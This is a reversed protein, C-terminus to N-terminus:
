IISDITNTQYLSLSRFTTESTSVVYLYICCLPLYLMSTFVVYLYICCLPLYLMSTFVVYLYICCVHLYLMCTFIVYLYICCLPLHESKKYIINTSFLSAVVVTLTCKNLLTLCM